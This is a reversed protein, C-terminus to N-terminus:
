RLGYVRMNGSVISGSYFFFNLGNIAGPVNWMGSINHNYVYQSNWYVVQAIFGKYNSSSPSQVIMRGSLGINSAPNVASYGNTLYFYPYGGYGGYASGYGWYNSGTQVVGNVVVQVLAQSGVSPVINDFEIEYTPFADNFCTNLTYSAQAGSIQGVLFRGNNANGTISIPWTGSAGTGTAAAGALSGASMSGVATVSGTVNLSSGVISGAVGTAPKGVGLSGVKMNALAATASWGGIAFQNDNDIGFYSAYAGPRHFSMFAATTNTPGQVMIGGLGGTATLMTGGTAQSGQSNLQTTTYLNSWSSQYTGGSMTAYGVELQSPTWVYHNYGDVSGWLWSPQAANIGGQNVPSSGAVWKFTMAAGTGNMALTSAKGSVDIPWSSGFNTVDVKLALRSGTWGIYLKSNNQGDGGGQQVPTFGLATQYNASGTVSSVRGYSDVTIASIGSTYTGGAGVTSLDLIPDLETGGKTIRGATGSVSAVKGNAANFAANAIVGAQNSSALSANAYGNVQGAYNILQNTKIRWQDFTDTLAVNAIAM